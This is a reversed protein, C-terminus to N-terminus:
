TTTAAVRKSSVLQINVGKFLLWLALSLEAVLTVIYVPAFPDELGPALVSIFSGTLYVMGALSLLGAVIRPVYNSKLLLYGVAITGLGFPILGISYGLAHMELFTLAGAQAQETSFASDGANGDILMLAALLNLLNLGLIADMIVRALVAFLALYHNVPRLLAYLAVAVILDAGIMLLDLAISFRFLSESGTINSATAAADGTDILTSRLLFEATIGAIIIILYWFGAIRAAKEQPVDISRNFM